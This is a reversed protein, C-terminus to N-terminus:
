LGAAARVQDLAEDLKAVDRGGAVALDPARGGTGLALVSLIRAGGASDERWQMGHRPTATALWRAYAPYIVTRAAAARQAVNEFHAVKVDARASAASFMVVAKPGDHTELLDMLTALGDLYQEGSVHGLNAAFLTRDHDMRELTELLEDTDKTFRQEVRLDYTLAAIM